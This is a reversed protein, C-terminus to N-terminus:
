LEHVSIHRGQLLVQEGGEDGGLSHYRTSPGHEEAWEADAVAARSLERHPVADNEDTITTQFALWASKINSLQKTDAETAAALNYLVVSALVVGCAVWHSVTIVDGFILIGSINTLVVCAAGVLAAVVSSMQEVVFYAMCEYAMWVLILFCTAGNWGHFVGHEAVADYDAVFMYLSAFLLGYTSTFLIAYASSCNDTENLVKECWINWFQGILVMGLVLLLGTGLGGGSDGWGNAEIDCLNAQVCGLAVLVVAIWQVASKRKKLIATHMICGLPVNINYFVAYQAPTLYVMTSLDMWYLLVVFVGCPLFKLSVTRWRKKPFSRIYCLYAGSVVLKIFENAAIATSLIFPYNDTSESPNSPAVTCQGCQPCADLVSVDNGDM